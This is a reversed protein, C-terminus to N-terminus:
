RPLVARVAHEGGEICPTPCALAVFPKSVSAYSRPPPRVNACSHRRWGHAFKAERTTRRIVMSAKRAVLGIARSASHMGRSPASIVSLQRRYQLREGVGRNGHRQDRQLDSRRIGDIRNYAVVHALRQSFVFQGSSTLTLDDGGNDQLTVSRNGGLGVVKGGISYLTSSCTVTVSVVDTTATGSGNTVTCTAGPPATYLTVNYTAGYSLKTTFAFAGNAAVVLNNGGNDQLTVATSAPLGSLTGGISYSNATCTVNVNTVNATGVTGQENAVACTEGTPQAKITVSYTAGMGLPASFAYSGNTTLTLDNAGNDQLVLSGTLGSITGGVAYSGSGCVVVISTVNGNGVIGSGGSVSCTAGAPQASVTVNYSSGYPLSASFTFPGSSTQALNNGGNDQLTVSGGAPLGNLTGGISFMNATCRVAVSTVSAGAITGSGSTVTCLEGAPQVAVTVAYAAADALPTAFAFTGNATLTLNDGGNDQLVITSTLGSITGGVTYTNAACNVAVSSVSGAGVVGTGGSVTCAQGAPQTQITVAYAAGSAVQTPFTFPGGSNVTLADGGNDLLAITGSLGSVTGGVTYSSTSCVVSVTTVNANGVTGGGNNVTCTQAPVNPQTLVTVKYAAGNPLATPFAFAGNADVTLNDGGNDQLVLGTGAVGSVSGGVAFSAAAADAGAADASAGDAVGADPSAVDGGTGDAASGDSGSADATSGDSGDNSITGDQPLAGDGGDLGGESVVHAGSDADPGPVAVSSGGCASVAAACGALIASRVLWLRLGRIREM